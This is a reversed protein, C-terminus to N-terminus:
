EFHYLGFYDGCESRGAIFRFNNLGHYIATYIDESQVKRVTVEVPM